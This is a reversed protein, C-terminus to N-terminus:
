TPKMTTPSLAKSLNSSGILCRCKGARTKWAVIKPHFGGTQSQVALFSFSIGKPIWRLVNLMAAKRTLGFDTGVLFVVRRCASGLKHSVDWETLYASAIYLEEAEGLARNYLDRLETSKTADPNLVIQM